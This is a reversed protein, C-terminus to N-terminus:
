LLNEINWILWSFNERVKIFEELLEIVLNWLFIDLWRLNLLFNLLWSKRMLLFWLWDDLLM